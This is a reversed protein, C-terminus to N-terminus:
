LRREMEEEGEEEEEKKWGEEEEEEEEQMLGACHSSEWSSIAPWMACDSHSAGGLSGM